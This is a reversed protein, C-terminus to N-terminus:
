NRGPKLKRVDGVRMTVGTRDFYELVPITYKRSSQLIDRFTAASMEEHDEFYSYLDAKIRDISDKLYYLETTVRVIEGQREMVRIVENLKPREVGLAKEIEKLYPPALPNRALAATIEGSLSKERAGLEVRHDPLRLHNGDRVCVGEAALLDTLDRFLRASVGGALRARVEELDM